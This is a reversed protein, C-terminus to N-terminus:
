KRSRGRTTKRPHGFFEKTRDVEYGDKEVEIVKDHPTIKDRVMQEALGLDIDNAVPRRDRILNVTARGSTEHDIKWVITRPSRPV